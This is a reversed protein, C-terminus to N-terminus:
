APLELLTHATRILEATLIPWFLRADAGFSAATVCEAETGTSPFMIMMAHSSGPRPRLIECVEFGSRFPLETALVVCDPPVEQRMALAQEGTRSVRRKFGHQAFLLELAFTMNAQSDVLLVRRGVM